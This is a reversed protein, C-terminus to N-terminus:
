MTQEKYKASICSVWSATSKHTKDSSSANESTATVFREKAAQLLLLVIVCQSNSFIIFM